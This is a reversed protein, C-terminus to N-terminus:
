TSKVFKRLDEMPCNPIANSNWVLNILHTELKCFAPGLVFAIITLQEAAQIEQVERKGAPFSQEWDELIRKAVDYIPEMDCKLAWVACCIDSLAQLRDEGAVAPATDPLYREIVDRLKSSIGGRSPGSLVRTQPNLPASSISHDIYPSPERINELATASASYKMDPSYQIRDRPNHAAIIEDGPHFDARTPLDEENHSTFTHSAMTM